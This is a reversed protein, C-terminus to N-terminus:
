SSGGTSGASLAAAAEFLASMRHVDVKENGSWWQLKWLRANMGAFRFRCEQRGREGSRELEVRILRCGHELLFLAEACDGATVELEQIERRKRM